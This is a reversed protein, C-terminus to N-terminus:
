GINVADLPPVGVEAALGDDDQLVALAELQGAAVLLVEFRHESPFELVGGKGVPGSMGCSSRQKTGSARAQEHAGAERVTSRACVRVASCSASRAKLWAVAWRRASPHICNMDGSPAIMRGAPVSVPGATRSAMVFM